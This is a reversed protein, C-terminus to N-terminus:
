GLAEDMLALVRAGHGGPPALRARLVAGDERAARRRAPTLASEVARAVADPTVESQLLEPLAPRGLLVNPLAIWPTHLVWRAVAATVPDTRYVVVTPVGALACELTVTGSCAVAVSATALADRAADLGTVATTGRLAPDGAREPPVATLVRDLLGRATLRAAAERLVPLMRAVERARSGPLVALTTTDGPEGQPVEEAAPHGVFRVTAQRVGLARLLPPEFDLLCGVSRACADLTRAREPRWAWVQPASLLVVPMGRARLARGLPLTFGHLDVLLAADWRARADLLQRALARLRLAGPLVDILGMAGAPATGFPIVGAATGAPGVAGEFVWPAGHIGATHVARAALRDGSPEGAVVLWRAPRM